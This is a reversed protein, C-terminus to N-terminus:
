LHGRLDDIHRADNVWLIYRRPDDHSYRIASVSAWDLEFFCPRASDWAMGQFQRLLVNLTGGHAVVAVRELGCEAVTSRIVDWAREVRGYLSRGAHAFQEETWARLDDVPDGGDYGALDAGYLERLEDMERYALHPIRARIAAATQRARPMTSSFVYELGWGMARRALREAMELGLDTLPNHAAIPVGESYDVHAHRILYVDVM